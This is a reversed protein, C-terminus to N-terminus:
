EGLEKRADEIWSEEWCNYKRYHEAAWDVGEARADAIFYRKVSERQYADYLPGFEAPKIDLIEVEYKFHHRAELDKEQSSLVLDRFNDEHRWVFTIRPEGNVKVFTIDGDDYVAYDIYRFLSACEAATSMGVAWREPLYSYPNADTELMWKFLSSSDPDYQRPELMDKITQLAEEHMRNFEEIKKM